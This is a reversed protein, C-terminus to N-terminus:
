RRVVWWVGHGTVRNPLHECDRRAIVDHRRSALADHTEMSKSPTRSREVISTSMEHLLPERYDFEGGLVYANLCRWYIRHVSRTILTALGSNKDSRTIATLIHQQSGSVKRFASRYM